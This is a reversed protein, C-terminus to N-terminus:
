PHGGGASSTSTSAKIDAALQDDTSVYAQQSETAMKYVSQMSKLMDERHAKWDSAFSHLAGALKKEGVAAEYSDAIGSANSFEEILLNLSGATSALLDLNVSLDAM